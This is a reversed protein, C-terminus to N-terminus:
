GSPRNVDRRDEKQHIPYQYPHSSHVQSLSDTCYDGNSDAFELVLELTKGVFFRNKLIPSLPVLAQEGSCWRTDIKLVSIFLIM